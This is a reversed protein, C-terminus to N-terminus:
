LDTRNWLFLVWNAADVLDGRAICDFCQKKMDALSLLEPNDWGCYGQLLREGLTDRMKEAFENVMRDLIGKEALLRDDRMADTNIYRTNFKMYVAREM